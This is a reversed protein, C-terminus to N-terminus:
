HWIDALNGITSIPVGVGEISKLRNRSIKYFCLVLTEFTLNDFLQTAYVIGFRLFLICQVTPPLHAM